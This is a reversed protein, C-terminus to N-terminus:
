YLNVLTETCYSFFKTSESVQLQSSDEPSGVAEPSSDDAVIGLEAFDADSFHLLSSSNRSTEEDEMAVETNHASTFEELESSNGSAEGIDCVCEDGNNGSLENNVAAATFAESLSKSSELLKGDTSESSRAAMSCLSEEDVIEEAILDSSSNALTLTTTQPSEKTDPLNDQVSTAVIEDGQQRDGGSQDALPPNSNEDRPSQDIPLDQSTGMSVENSDVTNTRTCQNSASSSLEVENQRREKSGEDSMTPKKATGCIVSAQQGNRKCAKARSLAAEGDERDGRVRDAWSLQRAVLPRSLQADEPESLQRAVKGGAAASQEKIAQLDRHPVSSLAPTMKGSAKLGVKRSAAASGSDEHRTSKLASSYSFRSDVTPVPSPSVKRVEWAVSQPRCGFLLYCRLSICLADITSFQVSSLLHHMETASCQGSYM